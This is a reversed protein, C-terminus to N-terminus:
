VARVTEGDADLRGLERAAARAAGRVSRVSLDGFGAADVEEAIADVSTAGTFQFVLIAWAESRADTRRNTHKTDDM